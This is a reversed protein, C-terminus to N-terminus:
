IRRHLLLEQMRTTQVAAPGDRIADWLYGIPRAAARHLPAELKAFANEIPTFDPASPPLYLLSAGAAEIMERIRARRHAPLNDMLVVDGCMLPPALVQEVYARFAEGGVRTETLARKPDPRYVPM